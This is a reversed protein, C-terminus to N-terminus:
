RAVLAAFGSRGQAGAGPGFHDRGLGHGRAFCPPAKRPDPPVGQRGNTEEIQGAGNIPAFAFRKLPWYDLLLLVFPFTVLMAKSLLGLALALVVLLYRGLAPPKKAYRSYAWLGLLFFVGSLVDKRESIWVVSETRLPHIAFLAAVFASRWLAGTMTRLVLFLLLVALAHLLVNVLHYSGAHLGSWQANLMLSISTLPHWNGVLPHTFARVLGARTLGNSVFPNEYVYFSDDYNFFDFRVTRGFVLLTIAVLAFCIAPVLWRSTRGPTPSSRRKAKSTSKARQSRKRGARKAAKKMLPQFGSSRDDHALARARCHAFLGPWLARQRAFGISSAEPFYKTPCSIEGISYGLAIIQVLIQNDFLFDDSNEELPLRDLLSRDFPATAPTISRFIPAM